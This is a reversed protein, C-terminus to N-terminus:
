QLGIRQEMAAGVADVGGMNNIVKSGQELAALQQQAAQAKAREQAMAEVQENSRINDPEINLIDAYDDQIELLNLKDIASRDGTANALNASFTVFRETAGITAAKQAQALTSVFEIEIEHGQIEEPPEPILRRGTAPFEVEDISTCIEFTINALETMASYVQQAIPALLGMKEAIKENIETASDPQKRESNILMAFLHNYFHQEVKDVLRDIDAQMIEAARPDVTDIPMIANNRTDENVVYANPSNSMDKLKSPGQKNPDVIKELAKYKKKVEKMIQKVDPYASIGPCDSPYVDEGNIFGEFMVFPFYNFGKVQLFKNDDNNGREYYVSIFRKKDSFNSKPDYFQNPEIANVVEVINEYQRNDYANKVTDSVNEEGFEDVLNGVTMTFFRYLTDVKGRSNRAIKYSGLPLIKTNIITEYDQEVALANIAFVGLGKFCEPLNSYLNSANYINRYLESVTATWDRVSSKNKDKFNKIGIKQWKQAPNTASSYIGASFNQVALGTSSDVIKSSFKPKKNVDTTLFKSTRPSYYDALDRWLPLIENYATNLQAERKVFYNKEKQTEKM